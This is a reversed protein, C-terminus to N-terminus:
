PGLRSSPAPIRPGTGTACSIAMSTISSNNASDSPYATGAEATRDASFAAPHEVLGATRALTRLRSPMEVTRSRSCSPMVRDHVHTIFHYALRALGSSVLLAGAPGITIALM